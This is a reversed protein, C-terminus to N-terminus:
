GATLKLQRGSWIPAILLGNLIPYAHKIHELLLHTKLFPSHTKGRLRARSKDYPVYHANFEGDQQMTWIYGATSQTAM